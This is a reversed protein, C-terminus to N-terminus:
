SLLAIEREPDLHKPRWGRDRRTDREVTDLAFRHFVGGGPEYVMAPHIVIGILERVVASGISGTGGAILVHM